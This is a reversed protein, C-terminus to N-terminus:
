PRPLVFVSETGAWTSSLTGTVSGSASVNIGDCPPVKVVANTANSSVVVSNFVAWTSGGDHSILVNRTGVFDASHFWVDIDKLGSVMAATASTATALDTFKGQRIMTM